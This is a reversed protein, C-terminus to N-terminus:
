NVKETNGSFMLFGQPKKINEPTSFLHMPFLFNLDFHFPAALIRVSKKTLDMNKMGSLAVNVEKLTGTSVTKYKSLNPEM